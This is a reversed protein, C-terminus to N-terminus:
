WTLQGGVQVGQYFIPLDTTVPLITDFSEPATAVGTLWMAKYGCFLSFHDSFCYHAALAAKGVFAVNRFSDHYVYDGTIGSGTENRTIENVFVGAKVYAELRVCGAIPESTWTAGVQFGSLMNNLKAAETIDGAAGTAALSSQDTMNLFRVGLLLNLQSDFLPHLLNAKGSNLYSKSAATVDTFVLTDNVSPVVLGAGTVSASGHFDNIGFYLLEAQWECCLQLIGDIRPGAGWTSDADSSTLM